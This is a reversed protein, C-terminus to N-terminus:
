FGERDFQALGWLLCKRAFARVSERHATSARELRALDGPDLRFAPASLMAGGPKRPRGPGRKVPRPGPAEAGAPLPVADVDALAYTRRIGRIERDIADLLDNIDAGPPLYGAEVVVTCVDDVKRGHGPRSFVSPFGLTRAKHADMSRLDGADPQRPDIGGLGHIFKLLSIPERDKRKRKRRQPSYTQHM